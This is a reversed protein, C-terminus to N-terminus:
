RRGALQAMIDSMRSLLAKHNPADKDWCGKDLRLQKAESEPKARASPAVKPANKQQLAQKL